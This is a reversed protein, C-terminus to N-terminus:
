PFQSFEIKFHGPVEGNSRGIRSVMGEGHEGALGEVQDEGIEVHQFWTDAPCALM